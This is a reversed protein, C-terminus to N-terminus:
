KMLGHVVPTEVEHCPVSITPASMRSTLHCDDTLCNQDAATLSDIRISMFQALWTGFPNCAWIMSSYACRKKFWIWWGTPCRLVALHLLLEYAHRSTSRMVTSTPPRRLLRAM